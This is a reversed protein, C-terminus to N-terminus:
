VPVPRGVNSEGLMYHIKALTSPGIGDVILLDKDQALFVNRTSGFKKLLRETLNFSIQLTNALASIRRDPHRSMMSRHPMLLKGEEIKEAIKYMITYAERHAQNGYFRKLEENMTHDIKSGTVWILQVGYRVISSAIGGYVAEMNIGFGRSGLKKLQEDIVDKASALDGIIVIFPIRNTRECYIQLNCMQTMLRDSHLSQIFDKIEKREFICKATEYDGYELCAIKSMPYMSQFLARKDIPERTDVTFQVMERV